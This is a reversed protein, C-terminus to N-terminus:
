STTGLWNKVVLMKLNQQVLQKYTKNLAYGDAPHLSLPLRVSLGESM